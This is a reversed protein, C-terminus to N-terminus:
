QLYNSFRSMMNGWQLFVDTNEVKLYKPIWIGEYNLTYRDIPSEPDFKWHDPIKVDGHYVCIYECLEKLASQATELQSLSSCRFLEKLSSIDAIAKDVSVLHNHYPSIYVFRFDNTCEQYEVTFNFIEQCLLSTSEITLFHSQIMEDMNPSSLIRDSLDENYFDHEPCISRLEPTEGLMNATLIELQQQIKFNLIDAYAEKLINIPLRKVNYLVNEMVDTISGPSFSWECTM